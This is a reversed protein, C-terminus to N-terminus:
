IFCAREITTRHMIGDPGDFRLVPLRKDGLSKLTGVFLNIPAGDSRQAFSGSAVGKIRLM